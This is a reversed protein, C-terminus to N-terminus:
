SFRFVCSFLHTSARPAFRAHLASWFVGEYVPISVGPISGVAGFFDVFRGSRRGIYFLTRGQPDKGRSRATDDADELGAGMGTGARM